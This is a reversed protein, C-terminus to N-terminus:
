MAKSIENTLIAYELCEKVGHDQWTDILGKRVQIAQLRQNIWERSYGKRLYTELAREITFEPIKVARMCISEEMKNIISRSAKHYDKCYTNIMQLSIFGM